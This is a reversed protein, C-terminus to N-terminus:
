DGRSAEEDAPPPKPQATSATSVLAGLDTMNLPMLYVDGGEDLPPLDELERIDNASFVGNMRMQTYFQARDTSAARLRANVNFKMRLKTASLLTTNVAGEIRTIWRALGYSAFSLEQQEIGTGWSTSRDVDGVMHPPVRFLGAIRRDAYKMQELFQLEAPPITLTKFTADGTLVGVSGANKPGKHMLDFNAKLAKAQEQTEIKPAEIIGSMHVGDGLFRAAHEEASRSLGITEMAQAIPSLGKISGPMTLAAIHLMEIPKEVRNRLPRFDAIDFVLGGESDRKIERVREPDLPWIEIVDGRNNRRVYNYSNGWLLMSLVVTEYFSGLSQDGNPVDWLARVPQPEQPTRSKDGKLIFQVPLAGIAEAILSTASYVAVAQMANSPTVTIGSRTLSSFWSAREAAEPGGRLVLTLGKVARGLVPM